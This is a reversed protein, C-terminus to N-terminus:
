TFVAKGKQTFKTECLPCKYPKAGTHKSMHVQLSNKQSFGKGCLECTFPREGVFSVFNHLSLKTRTYCAGLYSPSSSQIIM